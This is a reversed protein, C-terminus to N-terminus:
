VAALAILVGGGLAVADELVGIPLDRGGTVAVLRKRAQFDGAHWDCGFGLSIWTNHWASRLVAGPFGGTILRRCIEPADHPEAPEAEPPRGVRRCGGRESDSRHGCPCDLVVMSVCATQSTAGVDRVLAGGGRGCSDERGSVKVPNTPPRSCNFGPENIREEHAM